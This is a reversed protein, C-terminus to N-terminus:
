RAGELRRTVVDPWAGDDFGHQALFALALRELGFGVCTTHAPAGAARIDFSRGFFDQHYNISGVALKRGSYPLPVLLEFKLEFGRQYAAQTAYADVFFPDTATVIEFALGLRQLLSECRALYGDRAAVVDPAPGAAIVERMTFDWLRELGSLNAAEYRFCRGCATVSRMADLSTRQLGAYWHFCVSPALVCQVGAASGQPVTLQTGNWHASSAFDQLAAHDERLHAVLGIAAPFNRFYQCRDLVDAGILAPFALPCAGLDSAIELVCADLAGILAVMKPGLGYRGPGFRLLEGRQELIPHPDARFSSPLTERRVLVRALGPRFHACLKAAVDAMADSIRRLQEASIGPAEFEVHSRDPRLRVHTLTASVYALRKLFEDALEEPITLGLDAVGSM